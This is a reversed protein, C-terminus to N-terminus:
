NIIAVANQVEKKTVDTELYDYSYLMFGDTSLTRGYEIQKQLNNDSLLWTGSDADTGAKYVGLGFYLQIDPNTVTANWRDALTNFPFTPHANSVYLQPCIYDIYGRQSCWAMVDAGIKENNDFNCQPAIGFVVNEKLGHVRSFIGEVLMNVNAKRWERQPVPMATQRAYAQYSEKDYDTEESPYFYDDIQIGDVEYQEVIEAIGDIILKRVQPSSPDYYLGNKDTFTQYKNCPNNKSLVSPTQLTSIRFPNVWAHVAIGSQHFCEVIIALPDFDPAEGQTGMLIHSWPFYRSPYIADGFPRVQVIATNIKHEQCVQVMEEIKSRFASESREEPSLTLSLYPIWVGRMEETGAKAAGCPVFLFLMLVVLFIRKKM